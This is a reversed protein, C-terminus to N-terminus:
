VPHGWQVKGGRPLHTQRGDYAHEFPCETASLCSTARSNPALAASHDKALGLSEGPKVNEFGGWRM